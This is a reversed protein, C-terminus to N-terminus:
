LEWRRRIRSRRGHTEVSPAGEEPVELEAWSVEASAPAFVVELEAWGVEAQAQATPVELEAWSVEAQAPPFPVELEAWSVEAQAQAFPSEFEAWAIESAANATPVEFEVWSVEAQAQAFPVEVEAWSVEAQSDATPVELESWSVEAAADAIVSPIELEAWALESAAPAFPVELEAWSVEADAPVTAPILAFTVFADLVSNAVTATTAGYSGASAKEGTATALGGGNGQTSGRDSRETLNALDANAWDSYHPNFNDNERSVGVLVLRDAGLTTSGTVSLSTNATTESGTVLAEYPDGSAVVGRYAEIYGFTHDGSDAVTPAGQTGNYRSWFASLRTSTGGADPSAFGTWTGGNANSITAAQNAQTEVWLILIDDTAIGAPLGPTIAGTGTGVSGEAVYTPLAM